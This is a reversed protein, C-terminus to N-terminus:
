GLKVPPLIGVRVRDFPLVQQGATRGLKLIRVFGSVPVFAPRSLWAERGDASSVSGPCAWRGVSAIGRLSAVKAVFVPLILFPFVVAHIRRFRLHKVTLTLATDFWRIGVCQAGINRCTSDWRRGWKRQRGTIDEIM